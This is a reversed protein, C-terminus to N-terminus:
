AATERQIATSSRPEVRTERKFADLDPTDYERRTGILRYAPGTKAVAARDLFSESCHLYEAAKKTNMAHEM